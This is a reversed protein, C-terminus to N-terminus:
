VRMHMCPSLVVVVGGGGGGCVCVCVCACVCVCVCVAEESGVGVLPIGKMPQRAGSGLAADARIERVGNSAFSCMLGSLLHSPGIMALGPIFSEGSDAEIQCQWVRKVARY